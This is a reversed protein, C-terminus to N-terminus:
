NRWATFGFLFAVTIALKLVVSTWYSGPEEQRDYSRYAGRAQGTYLEYACYGLLAFGILLEVVRHATATTM